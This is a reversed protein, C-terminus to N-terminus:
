LAAKKRDFVLAQGGPLHAEATDIGMLHGTDCPRAGAIAEDTLGGIFGIVEERGFLGPRHPCLAHEFPLKMLERMNERYARVPLAEPFFLWTVPNWDDGTLLLKREPVYVVASGPTHGPCAIVEATLGGLDIAGPAILDVPPIPMDLWSERGWAPAARGAADSLVKERRARGTYIRLVDEEGYLALVRDFWISGLAHDHHGHTLLVDYELDTLARVCAKVDALGYGTDVLLARGRGAILTMCVDLGDRIHCIGPLVWEYRLTSIEGMSNLPTQRLGGNDPRM